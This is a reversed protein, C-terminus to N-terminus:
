KRELIYLGQGISVKKFQKFLPGLGMKEFHKHIHNVLEIVVSDEQYEISTLHIWTIWRDMTSSVVILVPDDLSYYTLKTRSNAFLVALRQQCGIIFSYHFHELIGYTKRENIDANESCQLVLYPELIGKENTSTDVNNVQHFAERLTHLDFQTQTLPRVFSFM